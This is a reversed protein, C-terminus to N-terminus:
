GGIYCFSFLLMADKSARYVSFHLDVHPLDNRKLLPFTEKRM